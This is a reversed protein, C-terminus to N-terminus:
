PKTELIVELEIPMGMPLSAVGIVLRASMKDEGFVERLLESAGDAVRPQDVLDGSTAIYVGLRVVRTVRDLSGLHERAVALANLAALHAAERGAADDLEKGIRGVFKPKQNEVPLMGTLFLLDGTQIAEVYAGFPKPAQPLQISLERLSAEASVM